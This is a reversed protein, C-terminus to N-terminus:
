FLTFLSFSRCVTVCDATSTKFLPQDVHVNQVCLNFEVAGSSFVWVISLTPCILFSIDQSKIWFGHIRCKGYHMQITDKMLTGAQYAARHKLSWVLKFRLGNSIQWLQHCWQSMVCCASYFQGREREQDQNTVQVEHTFLTSHGKLQAPVGTCHSTTFCLVGADTEQHHWTRCWM